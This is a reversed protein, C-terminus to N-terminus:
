IKWIVAVVEICFHITKNVDDDCMEFHQLLLRVANRLSDKEFISYNSQNPLVFDEIKLSEAFLHRLVVKM